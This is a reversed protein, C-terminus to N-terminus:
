RLVIPRDTIYTICVEYVNELSKDKVSHILKWIYRKCPSSFFFSLFFFFFLYFYFFFFFFFLFFFFFFAM